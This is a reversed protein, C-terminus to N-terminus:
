NDIGYFLCELKTILKYEGFGAEATEIDDYTTSHNSYNDITSDYIVIRKLTNEKLNYKFRSIYYDHKNLFVCKYMQDEKFKM